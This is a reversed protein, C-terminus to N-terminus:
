PKTTAAPLTVGCTEATAKLDSRVAQRQERTLPGWPRNVGADKICAQQEATLGDWINRARPFPLTVDCTKAASEVTARLATRESDDLRGVPRSIDQDQLCSRQADTLGAWWGRVKTRAPGDSATDAATGSDAAVDAAALQEVAAVPAPAATASTAVLAGAGLAAIGLGAALVTTRLAPM